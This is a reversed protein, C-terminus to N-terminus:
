SPIEFYKACDDYTLNRKGRLSQFAKNVKELKGSYEELEKPRLIGMLNHSPSWFYKLERKRFYTTFENLIEPFLEGVSREWYRGRNNEKMEKVKWLFMSTFFVSKLRDLEFHDRLSKLLRFVVKLNQKNFLHDHEAKPNVLLFSFDSLSKNESKFHKPVAYWLKLYSSYDDLYSSYTKLWEINEIEVTVVFDISISFDTDKCDKAYLTHAVSRKSYTIDLSRGYSTLSRPMVKEIISAVWDGLKGRDLLKRASDRTLKVLQSHVYRLSHDNNLENLLDNFELQIFGPRDNDQRIRMKEGYPMRLTLLVDFESPKELRVNHMYSGFLNYGKYLRKFVPDAESMRNLLFDRISNYVDTYPKRDNDDISVKNDIKRLHIDLQTSM